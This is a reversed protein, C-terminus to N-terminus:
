RKRSAMAIVTAQQRPANLAHELRALRAELHTDKDRLQNLQRRVTRLEQDKTGEPATQAAANVASSPRTEGGARSAMQLVRVTDKLGVIQQQQARIQSQQTRVQLQQQKVAEILLATLRSYDVGRADKGNEEYSVVEPVVQGVEEAIVGIEHKGSEKLDYSVGRLHEVQALAHDLTHINTKWRRSNYTLWGDGIAAGTGKGLTLRNTPLLTGIGVFGSYQNIQVAGPQQFTGITVGFGHRSQIFNNTDGMFLNATDGDNQFNNTGRVLANGFDVQLSQTPATTGIGVLTNANANNVGAISGLVLANNETVQANAGIATANILTTQIGLNANSGLFTNNSGTTAAGNTSNGAATGFATNNSGTTNTLLAIWGAATNNGGTTNSVLAQYGSGTNYSGTSNTLLAQFGTATNANGITNSLLTSAGDATNYSGTTNTYLADDGSATNSSGGTNYNLALAGAATNFSGTTNSALSRGSATNYSGTTNSQLAGYGTATNQTGTTNSQLAFDGAATLAVGTTTFNGAGYGFFANYSSSVGYDHIFPTGGFEIVGQSANSTTNPLLINGNITQNGAFTNATGLQPVKTTDLNLTLVGGTGGGTLDTGAAVGTVVKSTDVNLTVNGSSGGGTLDTGATVGTITGNGTGPFTQGPAFTILGNSAIDFGTETPANSGSGFLLNLSGSPNNSDNGVPETQWQFTQALAAGANSNYASAALDLPQSNKGVSTTATGTAPLSLTGRITSGGKVDLASAPKTTGIGIKPAKATGGQFLASNGLTGNNDTWLPLYNATGSGSAPPSNTGAALVSSSVPSVGSNPPAALVFATAPLGGITQADGAKLAYPVSVLLVRPQEPQGQVQAGVWRAESSAFLSTPLGQSTASGLLVTYHGSKDPQVNQTETWLPSGGQQDAYLSFTVGSTGPLPKGDADSLTGSFKVLTPVSNTAAGPPQQALLRPLCSSGLVLLSLLLNLVNRRGITDPMENEKRRNESM